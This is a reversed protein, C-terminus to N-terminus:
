YDKFLCTKQIKKSKNRLIATVEFVEFTMIYKINLGEKRLITTIEFVEFTMIYNINLGETSIKPNFQLNKVYDVKGL